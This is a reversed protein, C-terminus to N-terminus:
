KWAAVNVNIVLERLVYITLRVDASLSDFDSMAHRFVRSLEPNEALVLGMENTM